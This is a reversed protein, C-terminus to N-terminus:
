WFNGYGECGADKLCQRVCNRFPFGQNARGGVGLQGLCSDICAQKAQECHKYKDPCPLTRPKRNALTDDSATAPALVFEGIGIIVAAGSAGVTIIPITIPNDLIWWWWPLAAGPNLGLPDVLNNPNNRSYRYFNAGGRFRFSDESVFRGIQPDYYRARYYSAQPYEPPMEELWGAARLAPCAEVRAAQQGRPTM